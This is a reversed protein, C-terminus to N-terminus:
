IRKFKKIEIMVDDIFGDGGLSKYVDFLQLVCDYLNEKIEGKDKYQYYYALINNRLYLLNFNRQRDAITEVKEVLQEVEPTAPRQKVAKIISVIGATGGLATILTLLLETNM